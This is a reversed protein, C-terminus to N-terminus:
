STDRWLRLDIENWFGNRTVESDRPIGEARIRLKIIVSFPKPPYGFLRKFRKKNIILVEGLRYVRILPSKCVAIEEWDSVVGSRPPMMVQIRYILASFLDANAPAEWDVDTQTCNSPIDLQGHEFSVQLPYDVRGKTHQPQDSPDITRQHAGPSNIDTTPHTPTASTDPVSSTRSSTPSTAASPSHNVSRGHNGDDEHPPFIAVIDSNGMLFEPGFNSATIGYKHRIERTLVQVAESYTPPKEDDDEEAM